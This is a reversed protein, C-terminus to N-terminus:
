HQGQTYPPVSDKALLIPSRTLTYHTQALLCQSREVLVKSRLSYNILSNNNTSLWHLTQIDLNVTKNSYLIDVLMFDSSINFLIIAISLRNLLVCIDFRNILHFLTFLCVCYCHCSFPDFVWLLPCRTFIGMKGFLTPILLPVIIM